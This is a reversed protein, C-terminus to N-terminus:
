NASYDGYFSGFGDFGADDDHHHRHQHKHFEEDSEDYGYPDDDDKEHEHAFFAEARSWDLGHKACEDEDRYMLTLASPALDIGGVMALLRLLYEASEGLPTILDSEDAQNLAAHLEGLMMDVTYGSAFEGQEIAHALASSQPSQGGVQAVACRAQAAGAPGAVARCLADSEVQGMIRLAQQLTLACKAVQASGAAGCPVVTGAFAELLPKCAAVDSDEGAALVSLNGREAFADDRTVDNVYLPAEVMRLDNVAAVAALEKSFSPTTASCDILLTGEAALAILGEEGLYVEELDEQSTCYTIIADADSMPEVPHFGARALGDALAGGVQQNGIFAFSEPTEM